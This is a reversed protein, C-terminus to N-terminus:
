LSRAVASSFACAYALRASSWSSCARLRNTVACALSDASKLCAWISRQLAEAQTLAVAAATRSKVVSAALVDRGGLGLASVLLFLESGPDLSVGRDLLRALDRPALGLDLMASVVLVNREL